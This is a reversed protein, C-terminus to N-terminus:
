AFARERRVFEKYLESGINQGIEKAKETAGSVNVTVNFTFQRQQATQSPRSSLTYSGQHYGGPSLEMAESMRRAEDAIDRETSKMGIVAGEGFYEGVAMAARSPSRIGLASKIANLASRGVNWAAQFVDVGGMGNTFGRTFNAGVNWTDSQGLGREATSALSRGDNYASSQGIARAFDSAAGRATGLFTNALQSVGDKASNYLSSASNLTDNAFSQIGRGLSEGSDGGIGRLLSPLGDLAGSVLEGITGMASRPEEQSDDIGGALGANIDRGAEAMVTSPSRIGFIDKFRNIVGNAMDGIADLPSREGGEDIGESVGDPVDQGMEKAADKAADANGSISTAIAEPVQWGHSNCSDVISQLSGDFDSKLTGLEEESLNGFDTMAAGTTELAEDLSQFSLGSGAIIGLLQEQTEKASDSAATLDDVDKQLDHYKVSAEDAIVPFDGIWLGLGEEAAALKDTAEKLSMQDQILQKTTEKYLERAAEARAETKYAEAVQLIADKQESLKGSQADIVEISSGTAENFGEVALKLKEQEITTLNGKDALDGITKAYDDVMAANTGYDTWTERMSQALDAQSQLCDEASMAANGMAESAEQVSPTYGDYADKAAGMASTLGETADKVLENHKEWEMFQGVLDAVLTVVLGIATAKCVGSLAKLGGSLLGTSKSATSAGEGLKGAKGAAEGIAPSAGKLKSTLVGLSQAGKGFGVMMNGIGKTVKGTISLVPGAGAVFAVMGLISRQQETDMESFARAADALGQIMPEAADVVDLLAEVLPEGVESAVATVKNKLMELRAAMSANRNDVEAQLATNKKWEENSKAVANGVLESNGAMRKLIDTQRIASIGLEDLMVSMNGGEATASEMGSLVAGLASVPDNKWAEAFTDATMGATKAWIELDESSTAVAKDINSMVTSVATGGAEAEVGLSSLATALGLIDAQSMGVQTGAAALRMAMHSIDSETTAFNNGLGVIASGYNRIEGHAMKTINAFQAMETAATEADMNTAIDLGSVVQGFEDLEDIAFGLQAGLAQIDLIQSASVANTKSFEIAAQKLSQYQEETGDVTKRVGTLATDIDIAAAGCAAAAAAIPMTLGRTMSSGVSQMKEGANYVKGGFEAAKAGANVLASSVGGMQSAANIRMKELDQRAREMARGNYEGSIAITLSAKAM